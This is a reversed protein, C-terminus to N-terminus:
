KKFSFRPETRNILRKINSKHRWILLVSSLVSLIVAPINGGFCVLVIPFVCVATMSALSMYKICFLMVLFVTISIAAARSDIFWVASAWAIFAKGGKFDYWIPFSHGLMCCLGVFACATQASMAKVCLSSLLWVPLVTKLIDALMVSVSVISLGFVRVFNTFGPNGSGLRRIDKKYVLSSLIIAANIGGAFYGGLGAVATYLIYQWKM